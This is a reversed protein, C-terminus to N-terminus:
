ALERKEAIRLRASRARPNQTVEDDGATIPRHTIDVVSARHGCTCEPQRPPCVCDRSERRIFQKVIRDELSHFSIVALRGGPTLASIAQPLFSLLNELEANVAIRLAQFTRTAPHIGYSRRGVAKSVVAALQTTTELPRADAIAAAIRRAKNEEGYRWIVDALDDVALTNVLDAASPEQMPNFRMDLPGEARLSFGREPSDLQMSSVGLDLVIGDVAMWNLNRLQEALTIYSAQVLHARDSFRSLRQSAIALAQPDLDLGLLQGDPSSKDLIGEAHGGAGVTADVYKGASVPALGHIISQYLVPQHWVNADKM